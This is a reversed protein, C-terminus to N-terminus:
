ISQPPEHILEFACPLPVINVPEAEPRTASFSHVVAEIIMMSGERILVAVTVRLMILDIFELLMIAFVHEFHPM